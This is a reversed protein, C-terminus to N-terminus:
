RDNAMRRVVSRAGLVFDFECTCFPPEVDFKRAAEDRTQHEKFEAILSNKVGFVADENLYQDISDFVDTTVPWYGPASVAFHM